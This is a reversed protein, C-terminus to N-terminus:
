EKLCLLCASVGRVVFVHFGLGPWGRLTQHLKGTPVPPIWGAAFGGMGDVRLPAAGEPPNPQFPPYDSM